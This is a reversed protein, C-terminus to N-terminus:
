YSSVHSRSKLKKGDIKLPGILNKVQWAGKESQGLSVWYRNFCM